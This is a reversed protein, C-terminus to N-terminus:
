SRLVHLESPERKLDWLVFSALVCFNCWCSWFKSIVLDANQEDVRSDCVSKHIKCQSNLKLPLKSFELFFHLFLTEEHKAISFVELLRHRTTHLLPWLKLLINFFLREEPKVITFAMGQWFFSGKSPSHWGDPNRCCRRWFFHHEKVKSDNSLSSRKFFIIFPM